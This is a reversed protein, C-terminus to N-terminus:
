VRKKVYEHLNLNTNKRLYISNEILYRVSNLDKMTFIAVLEKLLKFNDLTTSNVVTSQYPEITNYLNVIDSNITLGGAQNVEFKKYNIM